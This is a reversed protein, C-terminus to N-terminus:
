IHIYVPHSFLCISLYVPLAHTGSVTYVILSINSCRSITIQIYIGITVKYIIKFLFLISLSLLPSLSLSLSSSHIYFPKLQVFTRGVYADAATVGAAFLTVHLYATYSTHSTLSLFSFLHTHTFPNTLSHSM